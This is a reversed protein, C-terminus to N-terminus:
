QPADATGDRAILVSMGEPLQMDTILQDPESFSDLWLDSGVPSRGPEEAGEEPAEVVPEVLTTTTTGDEAPVVSNYTADSLWAELDATRGYAAFINGEGRVLLTQQGPHERLVAGDVLLYPAPEEISLEAQQASPGMFITRQAI